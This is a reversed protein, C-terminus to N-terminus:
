YKQIPEICFTMVVLFMTALGNVEALIEAFKAYRRYYYIGNPSAVMHLGFFLEPKNMAMTEQARDFTVYKKENFEEEVISDDTLLHIPKTYFYVEKRISKSTM